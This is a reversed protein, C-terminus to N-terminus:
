SPAKRCTKLYRSMEKGRGLIFGASSARSRGRGRDRALEAKIEDTLTIALEVTCFQLHRLPFSLGPVTFLREYRRFYEWYWIAAMIPNSPLQVSAPLGLLPLACCWHANRDAPRGRVAFVLGGRAPQLYPKRGLFADVTYGAQSVQAATV